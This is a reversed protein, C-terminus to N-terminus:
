KESIDFGCKCCKFRHYKWIPTQLAVWAGCCPCHLSWVILIIVLILAGMVGFTVPRSAGMVLFVIAAAFWVVLVVPITKMLARFFKAPPKPQLSPPEQTSPAEQTKYVGDARFDCHPCAYSNRYLFHRVNIPAGCFPCHFLFLQMIMGGILLIASGMFLLEPPFIQAIKSQPTLSVYSAGCLVMIVSAWNMTSFKKRRREKEEPTLERNNAM